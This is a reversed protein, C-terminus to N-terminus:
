RTMVVTKIRQSQHGVVLSKQDELASTAYSEYAMAEELTGGGPGRVWASAMGHVLPKHFIRPIELLTWKEPNSIPTEGASTASACDYFNGREAGGTYFVQQGDAYTETADFEDGILKHCRVRFTIWVSAVDDKVQVGNQSLSWNLENYTTHIRPNSDTVTEVLGIATQGTATYSVYRDFEILEGFYSTNTPLIGATTVTHCQYNRGAYAVADGVAYAVTDDYDTPKYSTECEAWYATNTEDSSDAPAQGTSARLALYYTQTPPYFVEDGAAYTTGSAWDARFFREEVRQLVPWFHYDWCKELWKRAARRLTAFDGVSLSAPDLSVEEGAEYLVDIFDTTEM